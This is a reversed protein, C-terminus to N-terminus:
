KLPKADGSLGTVYVRSFAFAGGSGIFLSRDSGVKWGETSFKAYDGKWSIVQTGNMQVDVGSRRVSFSVTLPRERSVFKGRATTENQNYHKGDLITLGCVSDYVDIMFQKRGAGVLGILFHGGEEKLEVTLTLDYEVGPFFLLEVRHAVGNVAKPSLLVGGDLKWEGVMSKKTDVFKLLNVSGAPVPSELLRKELKARLVGQAGKLATEYWYRARDQFAQRDAKRQSADSWGDGLMAQADPTSPKALESAALVRLQEDSGRALYPLGKQWDGKVFCWHRGLVLNAEPNAPDLIVAGEAEVFQKREKKAESSAAALDKARDVYKQNKASRGAEEAEKSWRLVADFDEAKMAELGIRLCSEALDSADEPSKSSKKALVLAADRLADAKVDFIEARKAAASFATELDQCEAAVTGADRLLIWRVALEDKPNSAAELLKRCFALREPKERRSYEATFLDKVQKEASKLESPSPPKEQALVSALILLIM